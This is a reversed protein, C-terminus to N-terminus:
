GGKRAIQFLSLALMLCILAAAGTLWPHQPELALTVGRVWRSIAYMVIKSANLMFGLLFVFAMFRAIPSPRNAPLPSEPGHTKM